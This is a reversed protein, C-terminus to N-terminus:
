PPVRRGSRRAIEVVAYATHRDESVQAAGGLDRPDLLNTVWSKARAKRLVNDLTAVFEADDITHRDSHFVLADQEGVDGLHKDILQQARASDSSEVLFNPAGLSYNFVSAGFAAVLLVMAWLGM